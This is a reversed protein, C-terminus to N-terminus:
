VCESCLGVEKWVGSFLGVEKCVGPACVLRRVCVRQV